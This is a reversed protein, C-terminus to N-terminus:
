REGWTRGCEAALAECTVRVLEGQKPRFPMHKAKRHEISRMLAAREQEKRAAVRAHRRKSFWTLWPILATM